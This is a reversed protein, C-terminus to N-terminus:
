GDTYTCVEEMKECDDQEMEFDFPFLCARIGSTISKRHMSYLKYCLVGGVGLLVVFGAM